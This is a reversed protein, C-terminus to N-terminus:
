TTGPMEWRTWLSTLMPDALLCLNALKLIAISAAASSNAIQEFYSLYQEAVVVHLRYRDFFIRDVHTAIQSHAGRFDVLDRSSCQKAGIKVLKISLGIAWM